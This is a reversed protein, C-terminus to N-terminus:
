TLIKSKTKALQSTYSQNQNTGTESQQEYFARQINDDGVEYPIHKASRLYSSDGFSRKPYGRIDVLTAELDCIM